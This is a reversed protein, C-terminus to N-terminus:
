DPFQANGPVMYSGSGHEPLGPITDIVSIGRIDTIRIKLPQTGLQQTSVFHNYPAKPLDIWTGNKNVEFRMVPYKHNRVQIAAWWQSSGEKIRYTFNGSIPAKVVKWQINIKGASMDGIKSFANPSIDLAGPAAEPYLDTVYVVTKGKPGTVELYAGALAAQVGNYNYDTPNLATIEMDPPIPDLLAAGGSYGSGTYTAYSSRVDNWGAFASVTSLVLASVLAITLSLWSKRRM